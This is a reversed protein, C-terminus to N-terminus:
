RRGRVPKETLLPRNGSSTRHKRATNQRKPANHKCRDELQCCKKPRQWGYRQEKRMRLFIADCLTKSLSPEKRDASRCGLCVHISPTDQRSKQGDGGLHRKNQKEAPDADSHRAAFGLNLVRIPVDPEHHFFLGGGGKQNGPGKEGTNNGQPKIM